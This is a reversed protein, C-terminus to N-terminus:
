AAYGSDGGVGAGSLKEASVLSDCSAGAQPKMDGADNRGLSQLRPVARSFSEPGLKPSSTLGNRENERSELPVCLSSCWGLGSASCAAVLPRFERDPLLVTGQGECLMISSDGPIDGVQRKAGSNSTALINGFIPNGSNSIATGLNHSTKRASHGPTPEQLHRPYCSQVFCSIWPRKRTQYQWLFASNMTPSAMPPLPGSPRSTGVQTAMRYSFINRVVKVVTTM